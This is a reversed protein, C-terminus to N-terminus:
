FYYRISEYGDTCSYSTFHRENVHNLLNTRVEEIDDGSKLISNWMESITLFLEPTFRENM